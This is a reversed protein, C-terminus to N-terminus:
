LLPGVFSTKKKLIPKGNGLVTISFRRQGRKLEKRNLKVVFREIKGEEPQLILPSQALEIEGDVDELVLEIV